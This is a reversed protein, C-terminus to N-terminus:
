LTPSGRWRSLVCSTIRRCRWGVTICISTRDRSRELIRATVGIDAM